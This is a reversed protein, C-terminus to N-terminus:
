IWKPVYINRTFGEMYKNYDKIICDVIFAMVDTEQKPVKLGKLMNDIGTRFTRDDFYRVLVKNLLSIKKIMSKKTIDISFIYTQYVQIMKDSMFDIEIFRENIIRYYDPCYKLVVKNRLFSNEM